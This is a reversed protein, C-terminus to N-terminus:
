HLWGSVDRATAEAYNSPDATLTPHSNNAFTAIHEYYGQECLAQQWHPHIAMDLLTSYAEIARFPISTERRAGCIKV